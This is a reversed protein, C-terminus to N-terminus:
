VLLNRLLKSLLSEIHLIRERLGRDRPIWEAAVVSVQRDHMAMLEYVRSLESFTGESLTALVGMVLANRYATNEFHSLEFVTAYGSMLRRAIALNTAIESRVAALLNRRQRRDRIFDLALAVTISGIVTAVISLIADVTFGM